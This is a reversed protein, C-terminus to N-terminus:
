GHNIGGNEIMDIIKDIVDEAIDYAAAKISITEMSPKEKHTMQMMFNRADNDRLLNIVEKKQAKIIEFIKGSSVDVM